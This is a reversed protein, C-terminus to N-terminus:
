HKNELDKDKPTDLNINISGSSNCDTINPNGESRGVIGGISVEKPKGTNSEPWFNQLLSLSIVALSMVIVSLLIPQKSKSHAKWILLCGTFFLIVGLPIGIIPIKSFIGGIATLM